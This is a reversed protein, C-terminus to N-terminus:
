SITTSCLSPNANSDREWQYCDATVVKCYNYLSTCYLPCGDLSWTAWYQFSRLFSWSCTSVCWYICPFLIASAKFCSHSLFINTSSSIVLSTVWIQVSMYSNTFMCNSLHIWSPMVVRSCFRRCGSSARINSFDLLTHSFFLRLLIREEFLDLSFAPFPLIWFLLFDEYM